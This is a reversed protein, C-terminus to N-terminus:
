GAREQRHADVLAALTPVEGDPTVPVPATPTAGGDQGHAARRNVWMTRLGLQKAPVHDHYLSQAVHLVQDRTVGMEALQALALEFHNLAPKYAAADDATVVADFTVGLRANSHRFSARDVNSVIVLKYHRQLYALAEPSDPFAPWDKV